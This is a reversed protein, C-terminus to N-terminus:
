ILACLVYFPLTDLIENYDVYYYKRYPLGINKHILSITPKSVNFIYGSDDKNRNRVSPYLLLAIFVTEGNIIAQGVPYRYSMYKINEFSKEVMRWLNRDQVIIINPELIELAKEFHQQCNTKMVSTSNRDMGKDKKLASCVSYNIFSFADFMHCSKGNSFTLYESNSDTGLYKRFFICLVDTTGKMRNNRQNYQRIKEREMKKDYYENFAIFNKHHGFEQGVIMIRVSKGNITLDYKKGLHYLPGKYLLSNHSIKCDEYCSCLFTDGRFIKTDVYRELKKLREKTALEDSSVDYEMNNEVWNHWGTFILLIAHSFIVHRTRAAKFSKKFM